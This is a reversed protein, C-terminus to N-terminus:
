DGKIEINENTIFNDITVIVKPIPGYKKICYVEVIQSDDHYCIGNLSDFIIKEINDIDPKKTPLILGELMANMKKNSTSKPISYTIELRATLPGELMLDGYNDKYLWKVITEYNVTKAPTFAGHRTVIPRAKGQPSGPIDLTIM